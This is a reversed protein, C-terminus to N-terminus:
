VVKDPPNLNSQEFDTVSKQQATLGLTQTFAEYFMKARGSNVHENDVSEVLWIVCDVVCPFYADGLLPVADTLTLNAPARAYEITLQQGVASPPYVFFTNPSRVHRMWDKTPGSAGAQWTSFMLDLTEHNVENVNGGDGAVLVDIIRISDNPATQVTGAVCSIVTIYAFLDPRMIAVRKLAMNVVGLLHNDSYRYPVKTDQVARRVETIVDAPTFVAM